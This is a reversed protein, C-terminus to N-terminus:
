LEDKDGLLQGCVATPNGNRYRIEDLTNKETSRSKLNVQCCPEYLSGMSVTKVRVLEPKKTYKTFVDDFVGSYDLNEPVTIKLEKRRARGTPLSILLITIEGPVIMLLMATELYGMGVALGLTMTLLISGIERANGLLSRFRVLSLAGMVAVRTGPNGNVLMIVTRIMIPLLVLTPIFSRFYQNRYTRVTALVTGLMVLITIYLLFQGMAIGTDVTEVLANELM